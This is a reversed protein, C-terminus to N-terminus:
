FPIDDGTNFSPEPGFDKFSGEEEEGEEENQQKSKGSSGCFQFTEVIFERAYKKGGGEVEWSRTQSKGELYLQMGKEVYRGMTEATKGFAVWRHWETREQAQGDKGTWKESTAVDITAITKQNITKVEIKGVRGLVIMKNVGAM